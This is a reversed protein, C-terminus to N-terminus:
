GKIKYSKLVSENAKLRESRLKDANLKNQQMTLAFSQAGESQPRKVIPTSCRGGNRYGFLPIVKNDTQNM